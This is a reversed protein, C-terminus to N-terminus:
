RNDVTPLPRSASGTLLMNSGIDWFLHSITFPVCKLSVFCVYFDEKFARLHALCLPNLNSFLPLEFKDTIHFTLHLYSKVKLCMWINESLGVFLTGWRDRISPTFNFSPLDFSELNTRCDYLSAILLLTLTYCM